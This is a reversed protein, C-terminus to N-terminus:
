ATLSPSPFPFFLLPLSVRGLLFQQREILFAPLM